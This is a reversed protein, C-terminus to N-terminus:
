LVRRRMAACMHRARRSGNSDAASMGVHPQRLVVLSGRVPALSPSSTATPRISWRSSSWTTPRRSRYWAIIALTRARQDAGRPRSRDLPPRSRRVRDPAPPQARAQAAAWHHAGAPFATEWAV